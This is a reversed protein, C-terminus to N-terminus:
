SGLLFLVLVSVNPQPLLLIASPLRAAVYLLGFGACLMIQGGADGPHERYAQPAM